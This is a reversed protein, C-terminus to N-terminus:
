RKVQQREHLECLQLLRKKDEKYEQKEELVKDDLESVSLIQRSLWYFDVDRPYKESWLQLIAAQRLLIEERTGPMEEIDQLCAKVAEEYHKDLVTFVSIYQVKTRNNTLAWTYSKNEELPRIFKKPIVFSEYEITKRYIPEGQDDFIVFDYKDLGDWSFRIVTNPLVTSKPSPSMLLEHENEATDSRKKVGPDESDSDQQGLPTAKWREDLFNKISEVNEKLKEWFMWPGTQQNAFVVKEIFPFDGRIPFLSNAFGVAMGFFLCIVKKWM